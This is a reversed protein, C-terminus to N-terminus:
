VRYPCNPDTDRALLFIWYLNNNNDDNERQKTCFWDFFNCIFLIQGIYM